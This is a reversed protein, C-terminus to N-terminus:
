VIRVKTQNSFAYSPNPGLGDGYQSLAKAILRALGLHETESADIISVPPIAAAPLGILARLLNRRTM